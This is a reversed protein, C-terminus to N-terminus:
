SLEVHSAPNETWEEIVVLAEQEAIAEFTLLQSNTVLVDHKTHPPM